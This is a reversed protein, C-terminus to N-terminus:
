KKFGALFAKLLEEATSLQSDADVSGLGSGVQSLLNGREIGNVIIEQVASITAHTAIGAADKGLLAAGVKVNDYGLSRYLAEDTFIRSDDMILSYKQLLAAINRADKTGRRDRWALFKLMVLGPLSAARLVIARGPVAIEEAAANIEAFGQVAMTQDFDPPWSITGRPNELAGFPVLDVPSAGEYELRQAKHRDPIFKGTGILANKLANFHTWSEVAVAFDTDNTPNFTALGHVNHLQIDIARAGIMLYQVGQAKAASHVYELVALVNPEIPIEPKVSLM